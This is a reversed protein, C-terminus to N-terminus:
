HLGHQPCPCRGCGLSGVAGDMAKPVALFPAGVARQAAQAVEEGSESHLV